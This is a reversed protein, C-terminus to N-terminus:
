TFLPFIAVRPRNVDNTLYSTKPRAVVAPERKSQSRGHHANSVM